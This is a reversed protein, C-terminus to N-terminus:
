MLANIYFNIICSHVLLKVLQVHRNSISLSLLIELKIKVPVDDAFSGFHSILQLNPSRGFSSSVTSGSEMM